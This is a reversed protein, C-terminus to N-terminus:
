RFWHQFITLQVRPFLSWHFKFRFEFMKMSYFVNSFTTQSINNMKDRGGHTLMSSGHCGIIKHPHLTPYLRTKVVATILCPKDKYGVVKNVIYVGPEAMKSLVFVILFACVNALEINSAFCSDHSARTKKHFLTIISLAPFYYACITRVCSTSSSICVFAWKHLNPSDM